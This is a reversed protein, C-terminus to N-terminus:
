IVDYTPVDRTMYVCLALRARAVYFVHCIKILKIVLSALRHMRRSSGIRNAVKNPNIPTVEGNGETRIYIRAEDRCVQLLPICLIFRGCSARM